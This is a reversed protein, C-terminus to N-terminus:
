TTMLPSVLPSEEKRLILSIGDGAYALLWSASVMWIGVSLRFHRPYKAAGSLGLLAAPVLRGCHCPSLPPAEDGPLGSNVGQTAALSCSAECLGKGYAPACCRPVGEAKPVDPFRPASVGAVCLHTRWVCETVLAVDVLEIERYVVVRGLFPGSCVCGAAWVGRTINISPVSPM